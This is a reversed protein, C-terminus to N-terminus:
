VEMRHVSIYKAPVYDALWVGNDAQYFVVGDRQAAGADVQLIITKGQSLRRNAVKQATPVDVSLHVKQRTMSRLGEKMIPDLVNTITGHYLIEPPTAQAYDMELWDISHGQRCRIKLNPLKGDLGYRQKDDTLVMMMLVSRTLYFKKRLYFTNFKELLEEVDVWAQKNMAVGIGSPNHRLIGCLTSGMKSGCTRLMELDKEKLHELAETKQIIQLNHLMHKLADKANETHSNKEIYSFAVQFMSKLVDKLMSEQINKLMGEEIEKIMNELTDRLMNEEM